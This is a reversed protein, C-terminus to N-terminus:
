AQRIGVEDTMAAQARSREIRRTPHILQEWELSRLDNYGAAHAAPCHGYRVETLGARVRLAVFLDFPKKGRQRM